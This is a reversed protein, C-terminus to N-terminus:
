ASYLINPLLIDDRVLGKRNAGRLQVVKKSFAWHWWYLM